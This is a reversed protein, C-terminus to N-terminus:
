EEIVLTGVMGRARHDGVSCYFEYTGVTEAVFTVETTEDQKIVPTKVSLDDIVFDHMGSVNKFVLKITDGQKAKIMDPKYYFMGGEVEVVTPNGVEMSTGSNSDTEEVVMEEVEDVNTGPAPMTNSVPAEEVSPTIMPPEVGVKNKM